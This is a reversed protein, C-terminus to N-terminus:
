WRGTGCRQVFPTRKKGGVLDIWDEAWISIPSSKTLVGGVSVWASLYQYENADISRRLVRGYESEFWNSRQTTLLTRLADSAVTSGHLASKIGNIAVSGATSVQYQAASGGSM